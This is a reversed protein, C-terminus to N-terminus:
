KTLKKIRDRIIAASEYKEDEICEILVKKLIDIESENVLDINEDISDFYDKYKIEDIFYGKDTLLLSDIEMRSFTKLSLIIADPLSCNMKIKKNKSILYMSSYLKKNKCFLVVKEFKIKFISLVNIFLDYPSLSESKIGEHSMAIKKAYESSLFITFFQKKDYDSFIVKYKKDNHSYIIKAVQIDILKM